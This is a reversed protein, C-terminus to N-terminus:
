EQRKKERWVKPSVYITGASWMGKQLNRAEREAAHYPMLHFDPRTKGRYVEAFGARVMELNIDKGDLYIVGLVRGYRDM